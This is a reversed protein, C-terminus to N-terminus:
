PPFFVQAVCPDQQSRSHIHNVQGLLLQFTVCSRNHLLGRQTFNDCNCDLYPVDPVFQWLYAHPPLLWGLLNPISGVMLWAGTRGQYLGSKTRYSQSPTVKFHYGFLSAPLWSLFCLRVANPFCWVSAYINLPQISVISQQLQSLM